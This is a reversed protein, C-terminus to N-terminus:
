QKRKQTVEVDESKKIKAIGSEEQNVKIRKSEEVEAIPEKRSIQLRDSPNEKKDEADLTLEKESVKFSVKNFMFLAALVILVAGIIIM